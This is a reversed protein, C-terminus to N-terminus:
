EYQSTMEIHKGNETKIVDDNGHTVIRQFRNSCNFFAGVVFVVQGIMDWEAELWDAVGDGAESLEGGDDYDGGGGWM